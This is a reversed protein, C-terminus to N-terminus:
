FQGSYRCIHKWDSRHFALVLDDSRDSVIGVLRDRHSHHRPHNSGASNVPNRLIAIFSGFFGIIHLILLYGGINLHFHISVRSHIDHQRDIGIPFDDTCSCCAIVLGGSFFRQSGFLFGDFIQFAGNLGKIIRHNGISEPQIQVGAIVIHICSITFHNIAPCECHFLSKIPCGFVAANNRKCIRFQDIKKCLLITTFRSLM